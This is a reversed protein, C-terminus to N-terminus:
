QQSFRGLSFPELVSSDGTAISEALADGTAPAMMIGVADHGSVISLGDWGPVSGVIPVDDPTGPRVGVRASDFHADKLKPYLDVAAQIMDAVGEATVVQDFQNDHRTAAVLIGGDAQPVCYGAFGHVPSRPLLGPMRLVVRQGKVPRIPVDEPIWRDTIGTWPGSALVVHGSEVVGSAVRVGVVRNGDTELGFVETKDIFRVGLRTGAHVLSDVLSQGSVCGEQPSYVGGLAHPSIEPERELVEQSDLWRVGMDLESQWALDDRLLGANEETLAVKLVGSQRYQPELGAETLEEALAPFMRLSKLALDFFPRNEHPVHWLPGVVGATAGSAGWGFTHQEFVTSKIGRRALYYATACGMVGGGIIVVETHTTM